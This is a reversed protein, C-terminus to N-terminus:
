PHHKLFSFLDIRLFQCRLIVEQLQVLFIVFACCRTYNMALVRRSPFEQPIGEPENEKAIKTAFGRLSIM